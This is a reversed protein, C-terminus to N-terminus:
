ATVILVLELPLVVLWLLLAVISLAAVTTTVIRPARLEYAAANM